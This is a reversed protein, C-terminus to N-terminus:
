ASLTHTIKRTQSHVPGRTLTRIRFVKLERWNFRPNMNFCNIVWKDIGADFAPTGLLAPERYGGEIHFPIDGKLRACLEIDFDAGMIGTDGSHESGEAGHGIVDPEFMQVFDPEISQANLVDWFDGANYFEQFEPYDARTDLLNLVIDCVIGDALEFVLTTCQLEAKRQLHMDFGVRITAIRIQTDLVYSYKLSTATEPGGFAEVIASKPKGVLDYAKNFESAFLKPASNSRRLRALM